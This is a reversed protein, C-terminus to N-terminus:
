ACIFSFLSIPSLSYSLGFNTGTGIKGAVEGLLSREYAAPSARQGFLAPHSSAIVEGQRNLVSLSGFYGYSRHLQVLFATIKDDRDGGAVDQMRDLSAWILVNRYVEYLHRDISHLTEQAASAFTERLASRLQDGSRYSIHAGVLVTPLVALSGFLLSVKTQLRM